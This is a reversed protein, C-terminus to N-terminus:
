NDDSDNPDRMGSAADRLADARAADGLKRANEEAAKWQSKIHVYEDHYGKAYVSTSIGAIVAVEIATRRLLPFFWAIAVCGAIILGTIGIWGWVSNIIYNLIFSM